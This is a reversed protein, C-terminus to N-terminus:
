QRFDPGERSLRARLEASNAGYLRDGREVRSMGGAMTKMAVIGLGAKPAMRIAPTM